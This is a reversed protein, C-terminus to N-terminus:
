KEGRALVAKGEREGQAQSVSKRKLTLAATIRGEQSLDEPLDDLGTRPGDIDGVCHAEGRRL